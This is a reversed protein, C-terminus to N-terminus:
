RIGNAIEMLKHLGQARTQGRVVNSEDAEINGAPLRCIWGAKKVTGFASSKNKMADRKLHITWTDWIGAIGLRLFIEAKDANPYVLDDRFRADSAGGFIVTLERLGTIQKRRRGNGIQYEEKLMPKVSLDKAAEYYPTRWQGLVFFPAGYNHKIIEDMEDWGDKRFFGAGDFPMVYDALKLGMKICLNRAPNVNTLYHIRDQIATLKRYEEILFPVVSFNYGADDIMRIYTDQKKKDMLRNLLFRKECGHPCIEEELQFRLNLETQNGAHRPPLDNGLIRYYIYRM